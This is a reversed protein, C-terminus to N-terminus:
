KCSSRLGIKGVSQAKASQFLGVIGWGLKRGPFHLILDMGTWSGWPQGPIARTARLDLCWRPISLQPERHPLSPCSVVPCGGPIPWPSLTRPEAGAGACMRTCSHQLREPHCSGGGNNRKRTNSSGLAEWNWHWVLTHSSDSQCTGQSPHDQGGELAPSPRPSATSHLLGVHEKCHCCLRLNIASLCLGAPITM